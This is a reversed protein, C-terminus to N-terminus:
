SPAVGRFALLTFSADMPLAANRLPPANLHLDDVLMPPSAQEVSQLLQVLVPWPASLAVHLGIRRYGGDPEAPLVEVSSLNAGAGTAIQQVLQQFAAGAIADTNGDLVARPAPGTANRDAVRSQLSPLTAALEAMRQALVRRQGIRDGLDHFWGVAPAVVGVWVSAIVLVGLAVALLQGRRGNPLSSAM